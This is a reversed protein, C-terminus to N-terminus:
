ANGEILFEPPPPAPDYTIGRPAVRWHALDLRFDQELREAFPGVVETQLRAFCDRSVHTTWVEQRAAAAIAEENSVSGFSQSNRPQACFVLEGAPIMFTQGECQVTHGSKGGYLFHPMVGANVKGHRFHNMHNSRPLGLFDCIKAEFAPADTDIDREYSLALIRSRDYLAYLRELAGYLQVFRNKLVREANFTLPKQGRAACINQLYRSYAQEIPHRLVYIMQVGPGLTAHIRDVAEPNLYAPCIEGLRTVDPGAHAFHSLYWDLGKDFYQNYFFLEKPQSLGVDPNRKFVRYILSTGAKGQGLVVFDPLRSM